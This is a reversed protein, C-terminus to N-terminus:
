QRLKRSDEIGWEKLCHELLVLHPTRCYMCFCSVGQPTIQAFLKDIGRSNQVSVLNCTVRIIRPHSTTERWQPEQTAQWNYKINNNTNNDGM